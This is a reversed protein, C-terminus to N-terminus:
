FRINEMGWQAGIIFGVVLAVAGIIMLVIGVTQNQRRAFYGFLIALGGFLPPSVGLCIIASLISLVSWIILKTNSNQTTEM